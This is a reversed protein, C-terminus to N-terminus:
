ARERKNRERKQKERAERERGLTERERERERNAKNREKYKMTEPKEIIQLRPKEGTLHGASPKTRQLRYSHIRVSITM